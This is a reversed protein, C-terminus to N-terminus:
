FWSELRTCYDAYISNQQQPGIQDNIYTLGIGVDFGKYPSNFSIATTTPSWDMGLWQKRFIGNMNINGCYGAYAPNIIGPNNMYQSFIPDQQAFGRITSVFLLLITLYKFLSQIM